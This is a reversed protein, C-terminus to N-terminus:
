AEIGAADIAKRAAETALSATTEDPEAVHRNRIGTREAIWEDSTDVRKALEENGLARRPLASGTGLLVSRLMLPFGGCRADGAPQGRRDAFSGRYDARDRKGGSATRYRCRCQRR